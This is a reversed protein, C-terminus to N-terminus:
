KYKKSDEKIKVEKKLTTNAIKKIGPIDWSIFLWNPEIYM